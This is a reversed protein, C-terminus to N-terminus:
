LKFNGPVERLHAGLCRCQPSDPNARREANNGIRRADVMSPADIVMRFGHHEYLYRTIKNPPTKIIIGSPSIV